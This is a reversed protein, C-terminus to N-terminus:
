RSRGGGAAIGDREVLTFGASSELVFRGVLGGFRSRRRSGDSSSAHQSSRTLELREPRLRRRSSPAATSERRRRRRLLSGASFGSRKPTTVCHTASM